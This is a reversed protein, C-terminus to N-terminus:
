LDGEDDRVVGLEGGEGLAVVNGEQVQGDGLVGLRLLLRLDEVEDLLM